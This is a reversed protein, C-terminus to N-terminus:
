KDANRSQVTVTFIRVGADRKSFLEMGRAQLLSQRVKAAHCVAITASCPRLAPGTSPVGPTLWKFAGARWSGAAASGPLWIADHQSHTKCTSLHMSHTHARATHTHARTCYRVSERREGCLSM